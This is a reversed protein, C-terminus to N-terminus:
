SLNVLNELLNYEQGNFLYMLSFLCPSLFEIFRNFLRQSWINSDSLKRLNTTIGLLIPLSITDFYLFPNIDSSVSCSISIKAMSDTKLFSYRKINRLM